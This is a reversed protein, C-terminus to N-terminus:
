WNRLKLLSNQLFNLFIKHSQHIFLPFSMMAEQQMSIFMFTQHKEDRISYFQGRTVRWKLESCFYALLYIVSYKLYDELSPIQEVPFSQPSLVKVTIQLNVLSMQNQNEWENSNDCSDSIIDYTGLTIKWVIIKLAQNTLKWCGKCMPLTFDSSFPESLSGVWLIKFLDVQPCFDELKKSVDVSKKFLEM